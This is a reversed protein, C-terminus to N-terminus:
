YGAGTNPPKFQQGAERRTDKIVQFEQVELVGVGQVGMTNAAEGKRAFKNIRAWIM